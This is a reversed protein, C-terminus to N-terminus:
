QALIGGLFPLRVILCIGSPSAIEILNLINIVAGPPIAVRLLTGPLPGCKPCSSTQQCSNRRLFMTDGREFITHVQLPEM